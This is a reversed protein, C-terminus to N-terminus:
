KSVVESEEIERIRVRETVIDSRQQETAGPWRSDLTADALADFYRELRDSM